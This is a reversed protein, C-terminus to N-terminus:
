FKVWPFGPHLRIAFFLALSLSVDTTHEPEQGRTNVTRGAGLLDRDTEEM